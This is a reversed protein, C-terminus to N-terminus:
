EYIADYDEKTITMDRIDPRKEHFEALKENFRKIRGERSVINLLKAKDELSLRIAETKTVGLAASVEEALREVEPNKLNLAM